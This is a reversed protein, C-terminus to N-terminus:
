VVLGVTEFSEKIVRAPRQEVDIKRWGDRRIHVYLSALQPRPGLHESVRFDALSCPTRWAAADTCSYDISSPLRDSEGAIEFFLPVLKLCHPDGFGRALAHELLCCALLLLPLRPMTLRLVLDVAPTEGPSYQGHAAPDLSASPHRIMVSPSRVDHEPIVGGGDILKRAFTGDNRRYSALILRDYATTSYRPASLLLNFMIPVNWRQSRAELWPGINGAVYITTRAGDIYSVLNSM